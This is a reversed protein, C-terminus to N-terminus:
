VSQRNVRRNPRDPGSSDRYVGRSTDRQAHRTQRIDRESVDEEEREEDTGMRDPTGRTGVVERIAREESYDCRSVKDLVRHLNTKRRETSPGGM